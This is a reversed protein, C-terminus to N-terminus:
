RRAGRTSDAPRTLSGASRRRYATGAIAGWGRPGAEPFGSKGVLLGSIKKAKTLKPKMNRHRTRKRFRSNVSIMRAMRVEKSTEELQKSVPHPARRLMSCHFHSLQPIHWKPTFGECAVQPLGTAGGAM